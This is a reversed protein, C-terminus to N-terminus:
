LSLCRGGRERTRQQTQELEQEPTLQEERDAGLKKLEELEADPLIAEDYKLEWYRRERDELRAREVEELFEPEYHKGEDKWDVEGYEWSSSWKHRAVVMTAMELKENWCPGVWEPGYVEEEREREQEARVRLEQPNLGDASEIKTLYCFGGDFRPRADDFVERAQVPDRFPGYKITDTGADIPQINLWYEPSLDVPAKKEFEAIQQDEWGQEREDMRDCWRDYASELGQEAEEKTPYPGCWSLSQEDEEPSIELAYYYGAEDKGLYQKAESGFGGHWGSEHIIEPRNERERDLDAQMADLKRDIEEDMRMREMQEKIDKVLSSSRKGCLASEILSNQRELELSM